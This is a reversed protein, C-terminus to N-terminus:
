KEYEAGIGPGLCIPALGFSSLRQGRECGSAMSVRKKRPEWRGSAM